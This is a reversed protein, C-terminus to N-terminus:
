PRLSALQIQQGQGLARPIRLGLTPSTRYGEAEVRVRYLGDQLRGSEFQGQADAQGVLEEPFGRDDAAYWVVRAYPIPRGGQDRVEVRLTLALPADLGEADQVEQLSGPSAARVDAGAPIAALEIQAPPEPRRPREVPAPALLLEKGLGSDGDEGLPAPLAAFGIAGLGLLIAAASLVQPPSIAM